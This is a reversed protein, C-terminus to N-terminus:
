KTQKGHPTNGDIARQSKPRSRALEPGIGRESSGSQTGTEGRPKWATIWSAQVPKCVYLSGLAMARLEDAQCYEDGVLFLTATPLEGRLAELLEFGSQDPLRANVMWLQARCQRVLQIAARGTSAQLVTIGMSKAAEALRVYDSPKADVIGLCISHSCALTMPRFWLSGRRIFDAGRFCVHHWGRSQLGTHLMVASYPTVHLSRFKKCVGLSLLFSDTESCKDSVFVPSIPANQTLKRGRIPV